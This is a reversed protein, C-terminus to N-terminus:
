GRRLDRLVVTNSGSNQRQKHVRARERGTIRATEDLEHRIGLRLAEDARM